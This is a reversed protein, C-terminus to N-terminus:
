AKELAHSRAFTWHKNLLFNWVLTIVTAGVQAVVYPVGAVVNLLWMLIANLTLGTGAVVAFRPFARAHSADSRFTFRANVLYNFVASVGFGISTALVTGCAGSQVLVILILYHLATSAGGTLLFRGFEGGAATRTDTM